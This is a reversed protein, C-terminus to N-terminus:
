AIARSAPRPASAAPTARRALAQGLILFLFPMVVYRHREAFEFWLDFILLQAFIAALLLILIGGSRRILAAGLAMAIFLAGQLLPFLAAAVAAPLAPRLLSWRLPTFIEVGFTRFLKTLNLRLMDFPHGAIWAKAATAARASQELEPLHSLSDPLPMWNGSAQPNNGIWLGIGGTSTLPVFHGLLLGNRIWWPALLLLAVPISRWALAFLPAFGLVPLLLLGAMLPLTALGPQTLALLGALIGFIAGDRTDPARRNKLGLLRLVLALALVSVLPEKQAFPTALLFTPWILYLWAAAQGGRAAGARHGIRVILAAAMLDLLLNSSWLMLSGLGFLGGLGALLLPYAPPYLARFTVGTFPDTFSLGRGGLMDRALQVYIMPDGTPAHGWSFALVVLRLGVTIAILVTWRRPGHWRGRALPWAASALVLWGALLAFGTPSAGWRPLLSPITWLAYVAFLALM